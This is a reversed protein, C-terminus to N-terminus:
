PLDEKELLIHLMAQHDFKKVDGYSDTSAYKTAHEILDERTPHLKFLAYPGCFPCVIRWRKDRMPFRNTLFGQTHAALKEEDTMKAYEKETSGSARSM